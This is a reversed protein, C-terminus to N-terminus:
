RLPCPATVALVDLRAAFHPVTGKHMSATGVISQGARGHLRPPVATESSHYCGPLLLIGSAPGRWRM